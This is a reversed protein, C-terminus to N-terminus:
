FLVCKRFHVSHLPKPQCYRWTRSATRSSSTGTTSSSSSRVLVCCAHWWPICLRSLYLAPDAHFLWDQKWLWVNRCTKSLSPTVFYLFLSFCHSFSTSLHLTFLSLPSSSSLFFVLIAYNNGFLAEKQFQPWIDDPVADGCLEESVACQSRKEGGSFSCTM